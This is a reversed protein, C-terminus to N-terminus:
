PFRRMLVAISSEDKLSAAPKRAPSSKATSEPRNPIAAASAVVPPPLIPTLDGVEPTPRPYLASGTVWAPEIPIELKARTRPAVARSYGKTDSLLVHGGGYAVLALSLSTVATAWLSSASAKARTDVDLRVRAVIRSTIGRAAVAELKEALVSSGLLVMRLTEIADPVVELSARLRDLQEISADDGDDVVVFVSRGDAKARGVLAKLQEARPIGSDGAGGGACAERLLQELAIAPGAAAQAHVTAYSGVRSLARHLIQTIEEQNSGTVLL